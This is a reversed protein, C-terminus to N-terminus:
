NSDGRSQRNVIKEFLAQAEIQRIQNPAHPVGIVISALEEPSVFQYSNQIPRGIAQVVEFKLQMLTNKCHCCFIPCHDWNGPARERNVGFNMKGKSGAYVVAHKGRRCIPCQWSEPLHDWSERKNPESRLIAVYNDPVSQAAKKSETRWRHLTRPGTTPKTDVADVWSGLSLWQGIYFDSVREHKAPAYNFVPVALQGRRSPEYWHADTAAARGVARILKMRLEYAPRASEWAARAGAPSVSHPRHDAVTIFSRIQSPSFSFHPGTQAIKSATTDANNCDECVLVEEYAAFATGIREILQRGTEQPTTTGAEAFAEGFSAELAEGMHDHHIVLKCLIQGTQGKRTVAFKSRGCCPCVWDQSSGLWNSNMEMVHTAHHTQLRRALPSEASDLTTLDGCRVCDRLLELAEARLANEDAPASRHAYHWQGFRTASFDDM